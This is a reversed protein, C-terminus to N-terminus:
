ESLFNIHLRTEAHNEGLFTVAEVEVETGGFTMTIKITRERGTGNWKVTIDAHHKVGEDTVYQARDRDSSYVKVKAEEAEESVPKFEHTQSFGVPVEQDKRVFTTFTDMCMLCDNVKVAKELDHLIPIFDTMASVGYSRASARSSIVDPQHGFQIAGKVVALSAEDPILLKYNKTFNEQLVSQLYIPENFGGM